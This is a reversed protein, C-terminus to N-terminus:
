IDRLHLLKAAVGLGALFLFMFAEEDHQEYFVCHM